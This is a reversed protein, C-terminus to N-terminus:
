YVMIQYLTVQAPIFLLINCLITLFSRELAIVNSILDTHCFPFICSCILSLSGQLCFSIGYATYHILSLITCLSITATFLAWIRCLRISNTLGVPVNEKTESCSQSSNAQWHHYSAAPSNWVPEPWCHQLSLVWILQLWM